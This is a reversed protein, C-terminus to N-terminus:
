LCRHYPMTPVQQTQYTRTSDPTTQEPRTPDPHTQYRRRTDVLLNPLLSPIITTITRPHQEKAKPSATNSKTIAAAGGRGERGVKWGPGEALREAEGRM